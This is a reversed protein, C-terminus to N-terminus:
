ILVSFVAQFVQFDRAGKEFFEMQATALALAPAAILTSKM